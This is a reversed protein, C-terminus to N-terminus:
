GERIAIDGIFPDSGSGDVIQGGRIILDYDSMVNIFDIRNM